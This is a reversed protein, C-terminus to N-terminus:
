CTCFTGRRRWFTVRESGSGSEALEALERSKGEGGGWSVKQVSPKLTPTTPVTREEDDDSFVGIPKAGNNDSNIQLIVVAEYVFEYLILFIICQFSHIISSIYIVYYLILM